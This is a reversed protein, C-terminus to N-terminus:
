QMKLIIPEAHKSVLNNYLTRVDKYQDQIITLSNINFSYRAEIQKDAATVAYSFAISNNRTKTTLSKPLLNTTINDPLSIKVNVKNEELRSYSIPYIRDAANFPNEKVQEFLMPTIYLENDVQTVMGEITVNQTVTVPKYLDEIDEVTIDNIILGPNSKEAARAFEDKSNFTAYYDRFDYAAYGSLVMKITGSLTMDENLKLDYQYDSTEKFPCTLPIWQSYDKSIIRGNGNVCRDPLMGYPMYKETADLLVFGNDKQLAVLLYNLKYRSPNFQSLQGNARTSIAVPYANFGLKKLLQLLIFNVDASSGSGSKYHSCLGEESIFLRNDGNFNMKKAAEFAAKILEDGQKGSNKLEDVISGICLALQNEAPFNINNLLLGNVVEWSSTFAKFNGPITIAKIEIEFKTIYNEASNIYPESKFAPVDRAIWQNNNTATLQVYGFFNKSFDILPSDQIYLESYVVPIYRQFYWEYPLWDYSLEIDFVSGVKINPMALSTEYTESTTKKIFVSSAPLKEKVVKEGDLSYTIGRVTPKSMTEDKFNAYDYGAKKLIKVRFIRTFTFDTSSFWGYDALVIAVASTDKEYVTMKIDEPNIKGFTVPPKQSLLPQMFLPMIIFLLLFKKMDPINSNNNSKLNTM